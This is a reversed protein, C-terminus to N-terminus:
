EPVPVPWRLKERAEADDHRAERFAEDDLGDVRGDAFLVFRGYRPAMRLELPTWAGREYALILRRDDQWDGRGPQYVYSSYEAEDELGSHPVDPDGMAQFQGWDTEGAAVLECATPPYDLHQNVYMKMAIGIGRLNSASIPSKAYERTRSLAAMALGVYGLIIVAAGLIAITVQWRTIRVNDEAAAEPDRRVKAVTLAGALTILAAVFGAMTGFMVVADKGVLVAAAIALSILAPIYFYRM